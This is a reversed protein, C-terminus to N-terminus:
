NGYQNNVYPLIAWTVDDAMISKAEIKSNVVPAISCPYEKCDLCIDIGKTNACKLQDCLNNEPKNYCGPCRMSWDDINYVRTLRECLEKRFEESITGGSYHICLDCRHGCKSYIATEKPFAKRNPKKKIMIMRKVAELTDLDAIPIMMWKGDHYTKSGDYIDRIVKPFTDREKEYKEREAKGFIILFDYCNERIYVTLVTKGGRRFKLEDKGNGVEDLVYKGRMFRMTEESIKQLVTMESKERVGREAM